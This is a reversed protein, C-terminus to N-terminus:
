VSLQIVMMTRSRNTSMISPSTRETATNNTTLTESGAATVARREINSTVTASDMTSTRCRPSTFDWTENLSEREMTGAVAALAAAAVISPAVLPTPIHSTLTRSSSRPVQTTSTQHDSTRSAITASGNRVHQVPIPSTAAPFLRDAPSARPTSSASEDSKAKKDPHQTSNTALSFRCIVVILSNNHFCIAIFSTHSFCFLLNCM